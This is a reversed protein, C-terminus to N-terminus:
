WFFVTHNTKSTVILKYRRGTSGETKVAEPYLKRDKGNPTLVQRAGNTERRISDAPPAVHKTRSSVISRLRQIAAKSGKVEKELEKHAATKTEINTQVHAYYYYNRLSRVAELITEKLDTRLKGSRETVSVRCKLAGEVGENVDDAMRGATQM